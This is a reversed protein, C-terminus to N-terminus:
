LKSEKWLFKGFDVVSELATTDFVDFIVRVSKEIAIDTKEFNASNDERWYNLLILTQVWVGESFLRKSANQIKSENEQDKEMLEKSFTKVLFRLEKLQSLNKISDKKEQLVFLVYSRNLTLIEFFTYFFTLLKEKNSYFGYEEEQNALRTTEHYFSNWIEMQLGDFSGFNAYFEAETFNNERAFNFVSVPKKENILVSEMYLSILKEKSIKASTAKKSNTTKQSTETIKTTKTM